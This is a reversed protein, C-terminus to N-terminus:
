ERCFPSNPLFLVLTHFSVYLIVIFVLAEFVSCIFTYVRVHIDYIQFAIQSVLIVPQGCHPSSPLWLVPCM